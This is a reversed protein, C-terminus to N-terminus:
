CVLLGIIKIIFLYLIQFACHKKQIEYMPTNVTASEMFLKRWDKQDRVDYFLSTDAQLGEVTM